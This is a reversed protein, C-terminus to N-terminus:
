PGSCALPLLNKEIVAPQEIFAIFHRAAERQLQTNKGVRM